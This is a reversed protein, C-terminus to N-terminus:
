SVTPICFEFSGGTKGLAQHRHRRIWSSSSLSEGLGRRHEGQVCVCVYVGGDWLALGVGFSRTPSAALTFCGLVGWM